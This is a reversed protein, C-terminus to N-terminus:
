QNAVLQVTCQAYATNSWRVWYIGGPVVNIQGIGGATCNGIAACAITGSINFQQIGVPVNYVVFSNGMPVFQVGGINMGLQLGCGYMDGQYAVTISTTQPPQPKQNEAVWNSVTGNAPDIKSPNPPTLKSKETAPPLTEVRNSGLLEDKSKWGNAIAATRASKPPHTATEGELQMSEMGALAEELTAGLTRCVGGAFKDAQLEMKRRLKPDKESFDHGNLHHGIEHALVTYAAWKTKADGKFKELFATSYLIYRRKDVTSALANKVNAEKVIISEHSVDTGDLIRKVIKDAENSTEFTYYEKETEDGEFNCGHLITIPDQAFLCCTFLLLGYTLLNKM